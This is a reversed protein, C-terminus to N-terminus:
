LTALGSPTSQSFFLRYNVVDRMKFFSFICTKRKPKKPTVSGGGGGGGTFWEGWGGGEGGMGYGGGRGGGATDMGSGSGRARLGLARVMEDLRGEERQSLRGEKAEALRCQM